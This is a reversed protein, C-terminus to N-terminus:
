AGRVSCEEMKVCPLRGQLRGSLHPCWTTYWPYLEHCRLASGTVGTAGGPTYGARPAGIGADV